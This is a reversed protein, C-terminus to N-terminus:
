ERAGIKEWLSRLGIVALTVAPLIIEFVSANFPWIYLACYVQEMDSPYLNASIAAALVGVPVILPKYSRLKLVEALGVVTAYYFITIKMFITILLTVAILMDLRTLIEAIEIERTVAFTSSTSTDMRIGLVATTALVVILGLASSLSVGLLVPKRIQTNKEAYPFIMLFVLVDCFPITLLVHVSQVFDKPSIDLIPLFNSLKMDKILLICAIVATVAVIVAFVVSCRAITEIGDNVAMAAIMMLMIIFVIRPTDSMIYTLWFSNFYYDFHIMYEFFFWLYLASFIKGIFPGLAADNIEIIDKGPYKSSIVVYGFTVLVTLAYAALLAIWTNRKGVSNVFNISVVMFEMFSIILFMLQKNTIVGKELKM